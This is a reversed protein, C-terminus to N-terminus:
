GAPTVRKEYFWLVMKGAPAERVKRYGRRAYFSHNRTAWAPTDLTWLARRGSVGAGPAGDGRM